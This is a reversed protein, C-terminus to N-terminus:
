YHKLTQYRTYCGESNLPVGCHACVFRTEKKINERICVRCRRTPTKDKKTPPIHVLKHDKLKGDLRGPPDSKPARKPPTPTPTRNSDQSEDDSSPTSVDERTHILNESIDVLYDLFPKHSNPNSKTFVVYSNFLACQLLYFFVKKPWKVTKCIFPYYALYQDATDVGHM